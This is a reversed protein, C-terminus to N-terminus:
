QTFRMRLADSTDFGAGGAAPDRFWAQFTWTSGPLIDGGSPLNTYDLDHMLSSSQVQHVPLRFLPTAVCRRGNGFAVNTENQGYFFLGFNQDPLPEAILRLDMAGVSTSGKFSMVAPAGTSNPGSSCVNEFADPPLDILEFAALMPSGTTAIVHFDVAGGEAVFDFTLTTATEVGVEAAVDYQNRVSVGEITFRMVRQGVSPGGNGTAGHEIEAFHLVLRYKGDDAPIRYTFLNSSSTRHTLYLPDEDTDLVDPVQFNSFTDGNLFGVDSCWEEGTTDTYHPGGCNVRMHGAFTFGAPRGYTKVSPELDAAGGTTAILEGQIVKAAVGFGPEPLPPLATFADLGPDYRTVDILAGLGNPGSKGSVFIARGDHVMTGPEFHSRPIPLPELETWTDTSPDYAHHLDTDTPNTDHNFQGGFAHIRDRLRVGSLHNRAMPLPARSSWGAGPDDLDLVYHDPSGTDRDAEVGGFWHLSRGFRVLAGGAVAKPLPPGSSWTDQDVDYIWTDASAVGPHDGVFGAVLWVERDDRAIGAHTVPTPLDARSSWTDTAPDYVDVRSTTQISQNAFGGFVYLLDDIALSPGEFRAQPCDAHVEWCAEQAAAPLALLPLFASRLM